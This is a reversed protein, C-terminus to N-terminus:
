NNGLWKYMTIDGGNISDSVKLRLAYGKNKLNSLSDELYFVSWPTNQEFNNIEDVEDYISDAIVLSYRFNYIPPNPTYIFYETKRNDVKSSSFEAFDRKFFFFFGDTIETIKKSRSLSDYTIYLLMNNDLSYFRYVSDKNNHYDICNGVRIGYFYFNKQVINGVSDYLLSFGNLVDNEYYQKAGINGNHNYYVCQGNKKGNTYNCEEVLLNTNRDFFKILGSFQTDKLSINGEARLNNGINISNTNNHSCSTIIFILYFFFLSIKLKTQM